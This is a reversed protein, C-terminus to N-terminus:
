LLTRYNSRMGDRLWERAARPDARVQNAFNLDAARRDIEAGGEVAVRRYFDALVRRRGLFSITKFVGPTTGLQSQIRFSGSVSAPDLLPTHLILRRPRDPALALLEMAVSAGLCLGGLEYEALNLSDLLAMVEVALARSSHTGTLASSGGFGPLDPIVLRRFQALRPVWTEFNEASGIFGHCLLLPVGRGATVFRLRGQPRDIWREEWGAAVAEPLPM